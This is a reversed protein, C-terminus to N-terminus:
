IKKILQTNEQNLTTGLAQSLSHMKDLIPNPEPAHNVQCQSILTPSLTIKSITKNIFAIRNYHIQKWNIDIIINSFNDYQNPVNSKKLYKKLM